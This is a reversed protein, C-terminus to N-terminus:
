RLKIIYTESQIKGPGSAEQNIRDETSIEFLKVTDKLTKAIKIFRDTPHVPIIKSITLNKHHLKIKFVEWTSTPNHKNLFYLGKSARLINAHNLRFLTDTLIIERIILSDGERKYYINSNTSDQAQFSSFLQQDFPVKMDFTFNILIANDRITLTSKSTPNIYEGQLSKPFKTLNKAQAPLPETFSDAHKCSLVALSILLLLIKNYNM